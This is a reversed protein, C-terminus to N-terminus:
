EGKKGGGADPKVATEPKSPQRPGMSANEGRPDRAVGLAKEEEDGM